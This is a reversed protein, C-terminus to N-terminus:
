RAHAPAACVADVLKDVTTVEEMAADSIDVAFRKECEITMEVLDLSDAGLDDVLRSHPQVKSQDQGLERAVMTRVWGAVESRNMPKMDKDHTFTMLFGTRGAPSGEGIQFRMTGGHVRHTEDIM